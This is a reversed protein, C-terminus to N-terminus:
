SVVCVCVCSGISGGVPVISLKYGEDEAGMMTKRDDYRYRSSQSVM